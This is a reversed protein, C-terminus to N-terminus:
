SQKQSADCDFLKVIVCDLKQCVSLFNIKLSMLNKSM